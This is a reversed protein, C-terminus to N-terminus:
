QKPSQISEDQTRHEEMAQQALALLKDQKMRELAERHIMAGHIGGSMRIESLYVKGNELLMLDLHAFPMRARAMVARCFADQEPSLGCPESVGGGSLNMRFNNRNRRCYAERFDDVMVVRIDMFDAMYPQLVFPFAKDDFALCSYLTELNEWKRVGHGCHLRDAKTVVTGIGAQSFATIADLLEKRRTIALTNPVMWPNLIFAQAVKSGNLLQATASPLLTVGRDTLDSLLASKLFSSPIRGVFVDGDGLRHYERVLQNFRTVIM